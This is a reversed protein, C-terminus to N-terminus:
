EALQGGPSVAQTRGQTMARARVKLDLSCVSALFGAASAGALRWACAM